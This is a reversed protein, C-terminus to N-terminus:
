TRRHARRRQLCDDRARLGRQARRQVPQRGFSARGQIQTGGIISAADVLGPYVSSVTSNGYIRYCPVAAGITLGNDPDYTLENLEPINKSDVVLDLDFARARLQVLLDTGGALPKARDGAENLLDVAERVSHPAEYDIWKM